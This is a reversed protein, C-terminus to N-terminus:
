SNHTSLANLVTTTALSISYLYYSRSRFLAFPSKTYTCYSEAETLENEHTRGVGPITRIVRLILRLLDLNPEFVDTHKLQLRSNTKFKLVISLNLM